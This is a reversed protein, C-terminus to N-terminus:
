ANLLLTSPDVPEHNHQQQPMQEAAAVLLQHEVAAVKQTEDVVGVTGEM